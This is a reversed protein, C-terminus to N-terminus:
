HHHVQAGHWALPSVAFRYSGASRHHGRPKCLFEAPGAPLHRQETLPTRPLTPPTDTTTSRRADGVADTQELLLAAPSAPTTSNTM